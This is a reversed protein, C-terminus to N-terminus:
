SITEKSDYILSSHLSLILAHNLASLYLFLKISKETMLVSQRTVSGSDHLSIINIEDTM